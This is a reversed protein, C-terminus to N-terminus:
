AARAGSRERAWRACAEMAEAIPTPEGGFAARFRRDDLLYPLRWQYSMEAAAGYEPRVLGIARLLWDPITWLKGPRGLAGAMAQVLERTTGNWAVPLHWVKGLSEPHTGLVALGRAVDDSFNFSHPQDPDGLVEVPKGAALRELARNGLLGIPTAPGFFDSARGTTARVEGRAHAEFLERALRARLEGKHSCPRMPEDEDFPARTPRGYMYLCDLVVLRAGASAAAGLVGRRLPPLLEDWRHYQAPSTCDYVVDAGRAAEAASAPDTADARVWTLGQQPAGAPGRRVQRVRHGMALLEGALRSGIQGAGFIVHLEQHPLTSPNSPPSSPSADRETM